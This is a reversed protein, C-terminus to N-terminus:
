VYDTVDSELKRIRKLIKGREPGPASYKLLHKWDDLSLFDEMLDLEFALEDEGKDSYLFQLAIYDKCVQSPAERYYGAWYPNELWEALGPHETM